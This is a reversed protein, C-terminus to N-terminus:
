FHYEDPIIGIAPIDMIMEVQEKTKFTNDMFEILFCLGMSVMLGLAFAIAINMKKNPSVPKIPTKAEEIIKVNGNPILEVSYEIFETTILEVVERACEKDVDTYSIELIQTDARPTVTLSKLIEKSEREINSGEIAREVLDNTSIVEAYTKLLKQYMQVDNNSYSQEQVTNSEKGIFLKTNASYKPQIVFFSIIASMITAIMTISVILKWRKLLIEVIDEIRIIEENM